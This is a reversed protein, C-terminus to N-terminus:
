SRALDPQIKGHIIAVKSVDCFNVFLDNLRGVLSITYSHIVHKRNKEASHFVGSSCIRTGPSDISHGLSLGLSLNQSLICGLPTNGATFSGLYIIFQCLQTPSSLILLSGPLLFIIFDAVMALEAMKQVQFLM